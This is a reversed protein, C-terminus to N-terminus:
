ARSTIKSYKVANVLAKLTEENNATVLIDYNAVKLPGEEILKGNEDVSFAAAYGGAQLVLLVPCVDWAGGIATTIAGAAYQGGNAVLAHHAGNSGFMVTGTFNNLQGQLLTLEENTFVVKGEKKFGPYFDAFIGSKNSLTGNWVKVTRARKQTPLILITKTYKTAYWVRGSIPEGVFCAIVKKTEEEYVAIIVTSTVAGITLPRTGDVPDLYIILDGKGTLQGEEDRIKVGPIKKLIDRGAQGSKKDTISVITGDNKESNKLYQTGVLQSRRVVEMSKKLALHLLPFM